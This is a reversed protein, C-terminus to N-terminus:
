VKFFKVLVGSLRRATDNYQETTALRNTGDYGGYSYAYGNLSSGALSERATNMDSKTTWANSIDNYQETTAVRNSGDYGGYSYAYGNLSSGVVYCRATNM